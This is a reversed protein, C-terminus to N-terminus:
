SVHNSGDVIGGQIRTRQLPVDSDRSKSESRFWRGAFSGRKRLHAILVNPRISVHPGTMGATVAVGTTSSSAVGAFANCDYFGTWKVFRGSFDPWSKWSSRM